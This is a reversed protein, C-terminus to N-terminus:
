PISKKLKKISKRAFTAFSASTETCQKKAVSKVRCFIGHEKASIKACNRTSNKHMQLNLASNVVAFFREKRSNRKKPPSKPIFDDEILSSSISISEEAEESESDSTPIWINDLSDAQSKIEIFIEPMTLKTSFKPQFDDNYLEINRPRTLHSQKTHNLRRFHLLSRLEDESLRGCINNNNSNYMRILGFQIELQTCLGRQVPKYTGAAQFHYTFCEFIPFYLLHSAGM